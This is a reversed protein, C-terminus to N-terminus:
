KAKAAPKAVAAKAKAAGLRALDHQALSEADGVKRSPMMATIPGQKTELSRLLEQALKNRNVRHHPRQAHKEEAKQQKLLEKLDRMAMANMNSKRHELVSAPIKIKQFPKGVTPDSKLKKLDEQAMVSREHSAEKAM